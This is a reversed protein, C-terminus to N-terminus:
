RPATKYAPDGVISTSMKGFGLPLAPVLGTQADRDASSVHGICTKPEEQEGEVSVVKPAVKPKVKAHCAKEILNVKAHVGEVHCEYNEKKLIESAILRLRLFDPRRLDNGKKLIKDIAKKSAVSASEKFQEIEDRNLIGDLPSISAPKNRSRDLRDSEVSIKREIDRVTLSEPNKFFVVNGKFGHSLPLELSGYVDDAILNPKVPGATKLSEIRTNEALPKTNATEFQCTVVCQGANFTASRVGSSNEGAAIELGEGSFSIISDKALKRAELKDSRSEFDAYASSTMFGNLVFLLSWCVYFYDRRM